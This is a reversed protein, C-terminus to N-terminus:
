PRRRNPDASPYHLDDRAPCVAPQRHHLRHLGCDAGDAPQALSACAAPAPNAPAAVAAAPCVTGGRDCTGTTRSLNDRPSGQWLLLYQPKRSPAVTAAETIPQSRGAPQALRVTRPPALRMM